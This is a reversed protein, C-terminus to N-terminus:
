TGDADGNPLEYARWCLAEVADDRVLDSLWVEFFGREKINSDLLARETQRATGPEEFYDCGACMGDTLANGCHPCKNDTTAM